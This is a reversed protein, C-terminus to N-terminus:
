VAARVFVLVKRRSVKQRVISTCSCGAVEALWHCYMQFHEPLSRTSHEAYCTCGKSFRQHATVSSFWDRALLLGPLSCCPSLGSLHLGGAVGYRPQVSTRGGALQGDLACLGVIPVLLGEDTLKGETGQTNIGAALFNCVHPFALSFGPKTSKLPQKLVFAHM